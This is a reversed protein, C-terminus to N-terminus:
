RYLGGAQLSAIKRRVNELSALTNSRELTGRETTVLDRSLKTFLEKLQSENREALDYNIIIKM